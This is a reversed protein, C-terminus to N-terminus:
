VVLAIVAAAASVLAVGASIIAILFSDKAQRQVKPYDLLIKELHEVQLRTLKQDLPELDIVDRVDTVVIGKSTLKSEGPGTHEILGLELLKAKAGNTVPDNGVFMWHIFGNSRHSKLLDNCKNIVVEELLTRQM